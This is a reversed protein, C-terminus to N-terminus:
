WLPRVRGIVQDARVLGSAQYRSDFADPSSGQVYYQGTPIRGPALPALARGDHATAKARGVPQGNIAVERGSVSITDGPLGRVQKFLPQGRLGPAFAQAPGDFRYIILEGRQLPATDTQLWAVHYPLSPTWNFLLPLHPTPDVLLRIYALTWILLVPLYLYWRRRLELCWFNALLLVRPPIAGTHAQVTNM